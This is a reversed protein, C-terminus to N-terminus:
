SDKAQSLEAGAQKEKKEAQNLGLQIGCCIKTTNMLLFWTPYGVSVFVLVEDKFFCGVM